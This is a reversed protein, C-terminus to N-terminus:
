DTLRGIDDLLKERGESFLYADSSLKRQAATLVDRPPRRSAMLRRLYTELDSALAPTDLKLRVIQMLVAQNSENM